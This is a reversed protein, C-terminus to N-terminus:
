RKQHLNNFLSLMWVNDPTSTTIASKKDKLFGPIVIDSASTKIASQKGQLFNAMRETVIRNLVLIYDAEQPNSASIIEPHVLGLARNYELMLYHPYSYM